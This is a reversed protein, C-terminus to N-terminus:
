ELNIESDKSGSFNQYDQSFLMSNVWVWVKQGSLKNSSSFLCTEQSADQQQGEWRSKILSLPTTSLLLSSLKCNRSCSQIKVLNGKLAITLLV